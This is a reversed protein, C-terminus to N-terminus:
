IKLQLIEIQKRIQNKGWDALWHDILSNKNVGLLVIRWNYIESLECVNLQEKEIIYSLLDQDGAFKHNEKVSLEAWRAIPYSGREFLLVGSNYRNEDPELLGKMVAEMISLSPELVIGLGNDNLPQDFLPGLNGKIECDLDTWLTLTYPSLLMALPKKFWKIRLDYLNTIKFRSNWKKKYEEPISDPTTMFNMPIDFNVVNGREACWRKGKDSMGFDIFTVPFNNHKSYHHWWWPLIWELAEDAGVLMGKDLTATINTWNQLLQKITDM